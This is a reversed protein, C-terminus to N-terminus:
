KLEISIDTVHFESPEFSIRGDDKSPISLQKKIFDFYCDELGVKCGLFKEVLFNSLTETKETDLSSFGRYGRDSYIFVSGLNPNIKNMKEIQIKLDRISSSNEKKAQFLIGKRFIPSSKRYISIQVIGDAGIKSEFADKGRGRFKKYEIKWYGENKDNESFKSWDKVIQGCLDGTITDEEDSGFKWHNESKLISARLHKQIDNFTKSSIYDKIIM